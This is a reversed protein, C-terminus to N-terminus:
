SRNLTMYSRSEKTFSFTVVSDAITEAICMEGPITWSSTDNVSNWPKTFASRLSLFNRIVVRPQSKRLCNRPM